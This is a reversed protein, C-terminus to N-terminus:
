EKKKAEVIASMCVIQFLEKAENRRDERGDVGYIEFEPYMDKILRIRRKGMSGLGIVLVKM